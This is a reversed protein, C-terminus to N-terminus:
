NLVSAEIEDERMRQPDIFIEWFDFLATEGTLLRSRM